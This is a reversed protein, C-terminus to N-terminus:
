PGTPDGRRTRPRTTYGTFISTDLPFSDPSFIADYVHWGVALLLVVLAQHSHMMAALAIAEGPLYSAVPIPFWLIIGSLVMVVVGTLVLWYTFKEKYDYWDHAPPTAALGLRYRTDHAADLLDQRSILMSLRWGRVTVGFVATAIHLLLLAALAAGAYHHIRRAVEVGGVLSLLWQSAALEHLKQALGTAALVAVLLILALHEVIRAV